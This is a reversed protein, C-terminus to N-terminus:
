QHYAADTCCGSSKEDEACLANLWDVLQSVTEFSGPGIM